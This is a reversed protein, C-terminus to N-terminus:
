EENRHIPLSMRVTTGEGPKNIILMKYDPGYYLKIKERIHAMGLGSMREKSLGGRVRTLGLSAPEYEGAARGALGVGDDEVECLLLDRDLYARITIVGERKGPEIGHLIANEVLPQLIMRPVLCDSALEEVQIKLRIREGYRFSQINMYDQILGTEERLTIFDGKKGLSAQLLRVLASVVESIQPTKHIKAVWKITNLTNYLFHPNLQYQLAEMEAEKKLAEEQKVQKILEEVRNLMQNYSQGLDNLEGFGDEMWYAKLDGLEARKMLVRLGDLPRTVYRAFLISSAISVIALLLFLGILINRMKLLAANPQVPVDLISTWDLEASDLKATSRVIGKPIAGGGDGLDPRVETGFLLRKDQDILTLEGAMDKEQADAILEHLAVLALISGYTVRTRADVVPEVALLTPHRSSSLSMVGAPVVPIWKKGREERATEFPIPEANTQACLTQGSQDLSLCLQLLYRNSALQRRLMSDLYDRIRREEGAELPQEGRVAYRSIAYDEATQKLGQAIGALQQGTRDLFRKNAQEVLPAQERAAYSSSQAYFVYTAVLLPISGVLLLFLM